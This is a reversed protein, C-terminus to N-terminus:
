RLGEFHRMYSFTEFQLLPSSAFPRLYCTLPHSRPPRSVWPPSRLSLNKQESRCYGKRLMTGRLSGAALFLKGSYFRWSVAVMGGVAGVGLKWWEWGKVWMAVSELGEPTPELFKAALMTIISSCLLFRLLLSLYHLAQSALCQKTSRTSVTFSITTPSPRHITLHSKNPPHM